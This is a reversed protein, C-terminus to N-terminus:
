RYIASINLTNDNIYVYYTTSSAREVSPYFNQGTSLRFWIECTDFSFGAPVTALQRYVGGGIPAASWNASLLSQIFAALLPADSGNHTHDNLLQINSAMSPFFVDGTDGNGPKQFGHSLTQM